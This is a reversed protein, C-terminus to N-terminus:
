RFPANPLKRGPRRRAGEGGSLAAEFRVAHPVVGYSHDAKIRFGPSGTEASADAALASNCVAVLVALGMLRAPAGPTNEKM